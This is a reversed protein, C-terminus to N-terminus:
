ISQMHMIATYSINYTLLKQKASCHELGVNWDFLGTRGELGVNWDVLGTRRELGMNWHLVTWRNSVGM